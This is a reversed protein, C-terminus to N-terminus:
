RIPCAICAEGVCLTDVGFPKAAIESGCFFHGRASPVPGARLYLVGGAVSVVCPAGIEAPVGLSTPPQACSSTTVDIEQRERAGIDLIGGGDCALADVLASERRPGADADVGRVDSRRRHRHVLLGRFAAHRRRVHRPCDDPGDADVFRPDGSLNDAGAHMSGTWGQICCADISSGPADEWIFIQGAEGGGTPDANSWLVCSRLQPHSVYIGGGLASASNGVLSCNQIWSKFAWLGGGFRATNGSFECDIV